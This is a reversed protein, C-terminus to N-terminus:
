SRISRREIDYGGHHRFREDLEAHRISCRRPMRRISASGGRTLRSEIEETEWRWELVSEFARRSEELVRGPARRSTSSLFIASRRAQPTRVLGTDPTDLGALMKLLTSKGTGNRGVLGIRDRDGLFWDVSDFLVQTGFSKTFKEVRLVLRLGETAPRKGTKTM